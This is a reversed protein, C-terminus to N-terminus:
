PCTTFLDSDFYDECLLNILSEQYVKLKRELMYNLLGVELSPMKELQALEWETLRPALEHVGHLYGLSDMRWLALKDGYREQLGLAIQLGKVDFDGSYHIQTGLEVARDLLRLAALSPQGSVCILPHPLRRKTRECADLLASFISPNEVVYMHRPAYTTMSVFRVVTRLPLAMAEDCVGRWGAVWVISSVDDSFLGVREYTARAEWANVVSKRAVDIENPQSVSERDGETVVEFDEGVLVQIGYWFLRGTLRDRDLGHADGTTRAAFIPIREGRAPLQEFALTVAKWSPSFGQHNRFEDYCERMTRYGTAKGVSLMRVWACLRESSIGRLLWTCFTQWEKEQETYEEDRTRLNEPYLLNLCDDLSAAFRSDCLAADLHELRLTLQSKSYLNQALLGSLAEREVDSVSRLTVSGGARKGLQLYKERVQPWLRAFGLQTLYSYLENM